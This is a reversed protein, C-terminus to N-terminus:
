SLIPAFKRRPWNWSSKTLFPLRGIEMISHINSSSGEVISATSFYSSQFEWNCILYNSIGRSRESHCFPNDALRSRPTFGNYDGTAPRLHPVGFCPYLWFPAAIPV